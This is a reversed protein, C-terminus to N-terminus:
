LDSGFLSVLPGIVREEPYKSELRQWRHVPWIIHTAKAIILGLPIPGFTNSDLSRAHHDGEVWCHGKPILITKELNTSPWLPKVTDGEFAILRKILVEDPDLPSVLIVIDGRKLDYNRMIWKNVLVVDSSYKPRLNPPLPSWNNRERAFEAENFDPNLVPQMSEGRVIRPYASNNMVTYAISLSLGLSTAFVKIEQWM